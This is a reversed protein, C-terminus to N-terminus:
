IIKKRKLIMGKWVTRVPANIDDFGQFEAVPEFKREQIYLLFVQESFIWVPYSAPYISSPVHQVCLRDKSGELFPIRDIIIYEVPLSLLKDLLEYPNELYQLVGSLLIVNPQTDSLCTEIDPFFKLIDDEFWEKGVNVHAPQEIINWRVESLDRFFVRNQYYSTGLSGGFDLVNLRGKSQAAVWMFGALLPWSYQIENFLVSDREYVAEGNKVKLLAAKTMELIIASDYGTSACRAEDWTCFNGSYCFGRCVRSQFVRWWELLIPPLLRTAADRPNM